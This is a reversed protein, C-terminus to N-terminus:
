SAAAYRLVDFAEEFDRFRGIETFGRRDRNMRSARFRDTRIPTICESGTDAPANRTPACFPTSSPAAGGDTPSLAEVYGLIAGDLRTIRWLNANVQVRRFGRRETVLPETRPILEIVNM